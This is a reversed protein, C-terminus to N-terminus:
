RRPIAADVHEEAVADVLLDTSLFHSGSSLAALLVLAMTIRSKITTLEAQLKQEVLQLDVKSALRQELKVVELETMARAARESSAESRPQENPM